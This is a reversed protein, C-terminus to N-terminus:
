NNNLLNSLRGGATVVAASISERSTTYSEVMEKFINSSAAYNPDLWGSSMIASRNFITKVASTEPQGLIDRRASPLNFIDKWFPVAAASALSSIVTYTGPVNNSNKMIAFGMINGYTKIPKASVATTTQPLTAVDFNLNPNKERIKIFESAFGFYIALDGNTFADLSNQLARNWSYEPRSPNSFNTYYELVLNAPAPTQGLSDQLVSKLFGGSDIQVIPNGAQILMAALIEKANNINRFEGLAVGSRLINKSSDKTTLKSILGSVEAWTAPPRVIAMNNFIDRNWYMVLPDITFPLALTGSNNLYIEGGQIFTQKFTAEPLTTVPIPYIKNSYRVILDSPLIIADPGDGSALAEVLEQDFTAPNKEVYDISYKLQQSTFLKPAFSSFSNSALTGWMTINIPTSTGTSSSRYMSFMIAGIVIFFIFAGIVVYQFLNNNKM